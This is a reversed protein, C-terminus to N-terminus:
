EDSNRLVRYDLRELAALECVGGPMESEAIRDEARSGSGTGLRMSNNVVRYTNSTAGTRWEESYARDKGAGEPANNSNECNNTGIGGGSPGGTSEHSLLRRM